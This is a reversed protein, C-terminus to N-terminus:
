SLIIAYYLFKTGHIITIIYKVNKTEQQMFHELITVSNYILVSHEM